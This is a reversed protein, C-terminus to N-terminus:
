REDETIILDGNDSVSATQGALFVTTADMQQIVAPGPVRNGLRLLARDYLPVTSAGDGPLHMRATGLRASAADADQARELREADTSPLIGTAAVRITVVEIDEHPSSHGYLERHVDHFRTALTALNEADWGDLPVPIEFGQGFYRCDASASVTIAAEDAGDAKLQATLEQQADDFWSTLLGTSHPDFVRLVTRSDDVRLGAVLLGEASFLGPRRPVIVNRVGLHRLLLGAHLPGAGGFPVLAFERPDLGREVSVKRVARVMHALGIAIIAEAAETATMGLPEALRMVAETAAERDLRLEGALDGTGLTGLVAHADTITPEEGGRGYCAPGPVAKASRPGVRLRGTADRWAISGGGAGITHIDVTPALVVHDSVTQTATYPIRGDRILCIDTSTGGMDLSIANPAGHHEALALLGAVGGAPGSLVLRHAHLEAREAPVAGGNSQMVVFPADVGLDLLAAQARELYGGIVPRLAANIVTTSTRPYERFERAIESSTTVPTGPLRRRVAAALRSEHDDNLYSFLLSIAVAEPSLAAVEDVVRVIEQDTLEVLVTGSSTLRERVELRARREVLEHPRAPTLSYVEPRSSQRYGMLDRYGETAILAISALQGTLTANTAVTTGHCVLTVAELPMGQASLARMTNALGQSPDHPTSAVKAVLSRGQTSRAMGDTFTGGADISVTWRETSM